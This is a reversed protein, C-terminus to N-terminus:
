VYHWGVFLRFPYPLDPLRRAVRCFAQMSLTPGKFTTGGSLFGSHILYTPYVGHWGAFLRFPYPLDPLRLAMRCFAQISSTPRTFATGDSLFGSHILY